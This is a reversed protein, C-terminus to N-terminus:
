PLTSAPAEAAKAPSLRPSSLLRGLPERIWPEIRFAIVGAALLMLLATLLLALIGPMFEQLRAILLYGVRQHLLYLPYTIMGLIRATTSLHNGLAASIRDSYRVSSVFLVVTFIWVILAPTGSFHTHAYDNVVAAHLRIEIVAGAVCIAMLIWRAVTARQLLVMWLLAGLAFFVGHRLLLDDELWAMRSQGFAQLHTGIRGAPHLELLNFCFSLVAVVGMAAELWRWRNVLLLAFILTYFTLEVPLTWFSGDIFSFNPGPLLLLSHFWQTRHWGLWGRSVEAYHRVVMTTTACFWAAPYLRLVRGRAFSGASAAQASYAIVFGSILFFIEVGVWGFWVYRALWPYSVDFGEVQMGAGYHCALVLLAAAFRLLDLGM